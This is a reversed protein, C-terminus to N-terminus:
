LGTVDVAYEFHSDNGSTKVLFTEWGRANAAMREMSTSGHGHMEIPDWTIGDVFLSAPGRVHKEHVDMFLYCHEGSANGGFHGFVNSPEVYSRAWLDKCWM